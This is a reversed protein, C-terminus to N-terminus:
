WGGEDDTACFFEDIDMVLTMGNLLYARVQEITEGNSEWVVLEWDAVVQDLLRIM